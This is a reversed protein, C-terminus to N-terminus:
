PWPGNAPQASRRNYAGNTLPSARRVAIRTAHGDPPVRSRRSQAQACFSQISDRRHHLVLRGRIVRSFIAQEEASESARDNRSIAPFRRFTDVHCEHVAYGLRQVGPEVDVLALVARSEFMSFLHTHTM